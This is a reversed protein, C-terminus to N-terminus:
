HHLIAFFFEHSFDHYQLLEYGRVTALYYNVVKNVDQDKENPTLQNILVGDLTTQTGEIASSAVAEKQQLTPM